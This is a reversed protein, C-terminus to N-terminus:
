QIEIFKSTGQVPYSEAVAGEFWIRVTMGMALDEAPVWRDAQAVAAGEKVTVFAKDSVAGPPQQGGEVLLTCVVGEQASSEVTKIVGTIGAPTTPAQVDSVGGGLLVCGAAGVVATAASLLALAISVRRVAITTHIM